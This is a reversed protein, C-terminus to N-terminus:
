RIWVNQFISPSILARVISLWMHCMHSQFCSGKFHSMIFVVIFFYEYAMKLKNKLTNRRSFRKPVFFEHFPVLKFFFKWSEQLIWVFNLFIGNWQRKYRHFTDGVKQGPWWRQRRLMTTVNLSGGKWTCPNSDESNGYQHIKKM